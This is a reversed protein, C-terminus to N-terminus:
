TRRALVDTLRFRINGGLNYAPLQGQNVLKLLGDDDTGLQACAQSPGVLDIAAFPRRCQTGAPPETQTPVATPTAPALNM